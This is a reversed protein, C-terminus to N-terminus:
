NDCNEFEFGPFFVLILMEIFDNQKYCEEILHYCKKKKKKLFRM